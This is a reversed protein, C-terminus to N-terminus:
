PGQISRLYAVLAQADDRSFRFMPMDAHPGLLGERLRDQFKDLDVTRDIERLKPAAVHPSDGTRGAAHCDGCMRVAIRQGERELPSQAVAPAALLAAACVVATAIRQNM